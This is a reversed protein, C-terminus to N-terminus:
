QIRNKKWECKVLQRLDANLDAKRQMWYSYPARWLIKCTEGEQPRLKLETGRIKLHFVMYTGWRLFKEGVFTAGKEELLAEIDLGTEEYLERVGGDWVTEALHRCGKPLSMKGTGGDVILLNGEADYVIAGVREITDDNFPHNSSAYSHEM